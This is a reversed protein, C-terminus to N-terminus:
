ALAQVHHLQARSQEHARGWAQKVRPCLRVKSVESRPGRPAFDVTRSCRPLRDRHEKLEVEDVYSVDGNPRAAAAPDSGHHQQM